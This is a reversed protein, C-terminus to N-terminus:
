ANAHTIHADLQEIGPILAAIGEALNGGMVLEVGIKYADIM